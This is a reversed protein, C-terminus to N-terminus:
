STEPHAYPREPSTSPEDDHAHKPRQTDLLKFVIYPFIAQWVLWVSGPKQLEIVEPREVDGRSARSINEKRKEPRFIVDRCGLENGQVDANCKDALWNLAGLHSEKLGGEPRRDSRSQKSKSTHADRSAERRRPARNARINTVRLPIGCISSISLAVRVLQGGGELTSGDLTLMETHFTSFVTCAREFDVPLPKSRRSQFVRPELRILRALSLVVGTDSSQNNLKGVESQRPLLDSSTSSPV